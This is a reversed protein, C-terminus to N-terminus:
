SKTDKSQYLHWGEEWDNGSRISWFESKPGGVNYGEETYICGDKMYCYEEPSFYDHTVKHGKQMANLAETRTM